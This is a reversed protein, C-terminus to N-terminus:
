LNLTISAGDAALSHFSAFGAPADGVRPLSLTGPSATTPGAGVISVQARRRPSAEANLSSRARDDAEGAHPTRDPSALSCRLVAKAEEGRGERVLGLLDRELALQWREAWTDFDVPRDRVMEQRVEGLLDVLAGYEPGFQKSLQRRLRKALAPAKGGTSVGLLFDGRRVIAPVAFHCHKPDDVANLLVRRQEAERFIEENRAQGGTAAIALFAGALDGQTYPERLLAIEGRRALEELGKSPDEAVVTVDGGAELLARVKEEAVPGGGIVVCRRGALELAVPYGFAM